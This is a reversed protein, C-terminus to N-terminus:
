GCCWFSRFCSPRGPLLSCCPDGSHRVSRDAAGVLAAGLAGVLDADQRSIGASGVVLGESSIAVVGLVEEYRLVGLLVRDIPEHDGPVVGDAM